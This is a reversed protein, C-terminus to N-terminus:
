PSLKVNAIEEIKCDVKKKGLIENLYNIYLNRDEIITVQKKARTLAVYHNNSTNKTSFNYDRARVIVRDFELGKTAFVTMVKHKKESNIFCIKYKDNKYTEYFCKVEETSLVVDLIETLKDLERQVEDFDLKSSQLKEIISEVIKTKGEIDINLDLCLNYASYFNDHIMNLICRLVFSNNLGEDIPTRPIYEFDFGNENLYNKCSEADDHFNIIIVVEESKFNLLTKLYLVISDNFDKTQIIQVEENLAICNNKIYSDNHILNAFNTINPHSRFNHILEFKSFSLDLLDFINEKAGRWIYIAQKPDGVIFLFIGLKDKIYMFLNHMNEDSDQYEDLFLMKYKSILYQRSAESKKLIELALEFKFNKKVNFYTGLINDKELLKIGEEFSIFKHGRAYSVTFDGNSQKILADKLFPRIIELEIFSDNTAFVVQKDINLKIIREKLEETAKITFTIAAVTQHNLIEEMVYKIKNVLITTKGCGASASVAINNIGNKIIEERIHEDLIM